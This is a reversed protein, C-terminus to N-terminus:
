TIQGVKTLLHGLFIGLAIASLLTGTYRKKSVDKIFYPVVWSSILFVWGVIISMEM